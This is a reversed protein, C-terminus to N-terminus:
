QAQRFEALKGGTKEGSIPLKARSVPTAGLANLSALFKPGVDLLAGPNGDLEAAYAEALAWAAADQDTITAAERAKAFATVFPGLEDSDSM